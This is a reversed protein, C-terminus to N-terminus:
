SRATPRLEYSIDIEYPKDALQAYGNSDRIAAKVVELRRGAPLGALFAGATTTKLGGTIDIVIDSESFGPPMSGFVNREIAQRVREPNEFDDDTLHVLQFAGGSLASSSMLTERLSHADNMSSDSHLCWVRSSGHYRAAAEASAIGKGQSALVVLGKYKAAPRVTAVATGKGRGFVREVFPTFVIIGAILAPVALGIAWRTAQPMPVGSLVNVGMSFLWTAAFFLLPNKRAEWMSQRADESMTM